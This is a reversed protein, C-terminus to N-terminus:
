ATPFRHAARLQIGLAPSFLGLLHLHARKPLPASGCRDLGPRATAPLVRSDGTPAVRGEGRARTTFTPTPPFSTTTVSLIVPENNSFPAAHAIFREFWALKYDFKPGPQPNGNPLYLCGITIDNVVAEIYRSHTDADGDPLGRRSEVPTSGRALIAVGNWGKQGHWVAGYGAAKIGPAPPEGDSTRSDRCAPSTPSPRPSGDLVRPLRSTIGNVNFTAIKM